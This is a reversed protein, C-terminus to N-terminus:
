SGATPRLQVVVVSYPPVTQRTASGARASTISTANKLYSYVTPTASSPTFGRYSLTVTAAEDPDKNILMVNVDGNAERVAHAAVLPTSSEAGVLTDGPSGLHTIMRTGHYPPFPTNLPPECSAGSSLIGGDDYDTAGEVETINSCDTGNHLNWWDLTFAGHALWTLYEDPAFVGSPSTNKYATAAAETVAIGVNPANAGAYRDILSRLAAAMGPIETGPADLLDEQSTASPYHHVIVFDIVSGAISMVTNNWDMTDGPGVIGDPWHGPTTLVAGIQITPDVARMAEAHALLNRAYERPSKDPHHDIEWTAGYHGNGYVENGIEWYEVDYDNTVNAYRVWEAAEEPTGSGYNATIIPQAGAARVTEMFTDFETDPAVYGGEVTHTEWHYGDAYSGGPYRVMGVGADSLLGPIAPHNMNGDYVAVNMGVGTDPITALADGADVSVSATIAAPAPPAAATISGAAALTLALSLGVLRPSSSRPLRM